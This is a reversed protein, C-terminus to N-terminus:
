KPPGSRNVTIPPRPPGMPPERWMLWAICGLAVLAAAIALATM